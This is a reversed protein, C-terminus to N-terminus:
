PFDKDISKSFNHMSPVVVYLIYPIQYQNSQTSNSLLPVQRNKSQEKLERYKQILPVRHKEWQDNLTVLKQSSNEVLQQFLIQFKLSWLILIIHLNVYSLVGRKRSTLTWRISYNFITCISLIFIIDM